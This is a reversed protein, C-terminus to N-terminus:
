AWGDEEPHASLGWVKLGDPKATVIGRPGAGAEDSKHIGLYYKTVM